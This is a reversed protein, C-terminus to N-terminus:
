AHTPRLLPVPGPIQVNTLLLRMTSTGTQWTTLSLHMVADLVLKSNAHLLYKDTSNPVEATSIPKGSYKTVRQGKKIHRTTFLWLVACQISSTKIECCDLDDSFNEDDLNSCSPQPAKGVQHRTDTMYLKGSGWCGTNKCSQHQGTWPCKRSPSLWDRPEYWETWCRNHSGSQVNYM